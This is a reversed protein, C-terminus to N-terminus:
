GLRRELVLAAIASREPRCNSAEGAAVFGNSRYFGVAGANAPEVEVRILEADPFSDIVEDLLRRGVGQGQHRPLVCLQRLAVAKGSEDASAFALGGIEKGDDAVLFESNPEALRVELSAMSHWDDPIGTVRAAGDIPEPAHWTEALLARIAHLDRRSATRIFM